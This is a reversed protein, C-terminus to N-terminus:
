GKQNLNLAQLQEAEDATLPLYVGGGAGGNEVYIGFQAFPKTIDVPSGLHQAVIDLAQGATGSVLANGSYYALNTGEASDAGSPDFWKIQFSIHGSKDAAKVSEVASKVQDIPSTKNLKPSFSTSNALDVAMQATKPTKLTIAYEAYFNQLGRAGTLYLTGFDDPISGQYVAYQRRQVGTQESASLAAYEARFSDWLRRAQSNDEVVSTSVNKIEGTQPLATSKEAADANEAILAQLKQWPTSESGNMNAIDGLYRTLTQGDTTRIVAAYSPDFSQVGTKVAPSIKYRLKQVAADLDDAVQARIDDQTYRIDQTLLDNYQPDGGRQGNNQVPTLQVSAIKNTPVDQALVNRQVGRVGLGFALCLGVLVLTVPAATLLNKLKKTTLLEYLFYIFLAAVGLIVYTSTQDTNNNGLVAFYPILLAVPLAIVCRYVHQLLRSPANSGAMESRRTRFALWGLVFYVAALIYTYAIAGGSLFFGSTGSLGALRSGGFGSSTASLVFNAPINFSSDGVIGLSESGVIPLSTTVAGAFLSTVLRPLFLILAGLVINGPITGTLSASLLAAASVLTGGALCTFLVYPVYSPILSAGLLVYLLATSLVSVVTIFYYWTLAAAGLSIYLSGRTNALSHYFDSGSRTHFPRFLVLCLVVPIVYLLVASFPALTNASVTFATQAGARKANEYNMWETIPIVWDLFLSIILLVIGGVRLQRMGEWFLSKDFGKKKM